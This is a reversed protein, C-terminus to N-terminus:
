TELPLQEGLQGRLASFMVFGNPQQGNYIIGQRTRYCVTYWIKHVPIEMLHCGIFVYKIDRDM